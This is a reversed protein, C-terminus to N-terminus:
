HDLFTDIKKVAELYAVSLASDLGHLGPVYHIRSDITTLRLDDTDIVQYEVEFKGAFEYLQVHITFGRYHFTCLAGPFQTSESSFQHDMGRTTVLKARGLDSLHLRGEHEELLGHLLYLEVLDEGLFHEDDQQLFEIAQKFVLLDSHKMTGNGLGCQQM